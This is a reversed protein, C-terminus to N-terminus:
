KSKSGENAGDQFGDEYIKNVLITLEKETLSNKIAKVNKKAYNDTM